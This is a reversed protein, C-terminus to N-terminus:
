DFISDLPHVKKSILGVEEEMEFSPGQIDRADYKTTELLYRMAEGPIKPKERLLNQWLEDPLGLYKLPWKFGEDAEEDLTEFPLFENKLGPAFPQIFEQLDCKPDSRLLPLEHKLWQRRQTNRSADEDFFPSAGASQSISALVSATGADIFMRENQIEMQSANPAETVCTTCQPNIDGTYDEGSTNIPCSGPSHRYGDRPDEIGGRPDELATEYTHEEIPSICELPGCIKHDRVLGYFRAYDHIYTESPQSM